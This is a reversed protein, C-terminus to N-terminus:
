CVISQWLLARFVIVYLFCVCICVFLVCVCVEKIKVKIIDCLSIDPIIEIGAYM